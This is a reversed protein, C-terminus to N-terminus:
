QDKFLGMARHLRRDSMKIYELNLEFGLYKRGLRAAVAATTGSGSFPDLITDGEASGALICDTPLDEPFVAFHAEKYPKTSITWVSKKNAFFGEWPVHSM